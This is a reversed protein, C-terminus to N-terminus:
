LTLSHPVSFSLFRQRSPPSLGKEEANFGLTMNYFVHFNREGPAQFCLRSKELLYHEMLSGCIYRDNDFQIKILKGQQQQQQQKKHTRTHTHQSGRARPPCLSLPAAVFSAPLTTTVARRPM